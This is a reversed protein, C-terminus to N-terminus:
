RSRKIERINRGSAHVFQSVLFLGTLMLTYARDSGFQWFPRYLRRAEVNAASRETAGSAGPAFPGATGADQRARTVIWSCTRRMVSPHIVIQGENLHKRLEKNGWAAERVLHDIWISTDALILEAGAQALFIKLKPM